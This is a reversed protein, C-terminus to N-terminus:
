INVPKSTFSKLEDLNEPYSKLMKCNGFMCVMYKVHSTNWNRLVEINSLSKCNYFMDHTDKVNGINWNKLGDINSLSECDYFMYSMDDICGTNWNKLADVNSLSECDYFLYRASVIKSTDWNNLADINKLSYCGLFMCDLSDTPPMPLGTPLTEVGKDNYVYIKPYKLNPVVQKSEIFHFYDKWNSM